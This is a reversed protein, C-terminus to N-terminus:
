FYRKSVAVIADVYAQTSEYPGNERLSALGQYYAALARRYDGNEQNILYRLYTASMTINQTPQAPDLPRSVLSQNVFSVTDPMLQGIGVAGTSSVVKNQWGSEVYALSKLLDAPIGNAKAAKDFQPQLASRSQNAKVEPPLPGGPSASYKAGSLVRVTKTTVAVSRGSGKSVILSDGARIKHVDRISNTNALAEISVGAKRAISTLTDGQKIVYTSTSGSARNAANATTSVTSSAARATSTASKAEATGGAGLILASGAAALAGAFWRGRVSTARSMPARLAEIDVFAPVAVM